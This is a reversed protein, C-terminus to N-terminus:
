GARWGLAAAAAAGGRSSAEPPFGELPRHHCEDGGPVAALPSCSIWDYVATVLPKHHDHRHTNHHYRHHPSPHLITTADMAAPYLLLLHAIIHWLSIILLLLLFPPLYRHAANMKACHLPLLHPNVDGCVDMDM